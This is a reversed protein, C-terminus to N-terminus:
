ASHRLVRGPRRGTVAGNAVVLEGNVWVDRVGSALQCPQTWTANDRMGAPDFVAIDAKMGRALIGRDSIGLRNAAASTSKRVADALSLKKREVVYRRFLRAHAGFSRPHPRGAAHVSMASGDSGVVALPHALFEAVDAEARYFLVVQVSNGHRAVLRLCLEEPSMAYRAAASSIGEGELSESEPGALSVVVREWDWPITGFLGQALEHRAREFCRDDSLLEAIGGEGHEQVWSPLYQALSSASADYPYVDYGIDIGSEFSRQFLDTVEGARGWTRPDNLAVHSYQTRVNTRRGVEIAEAFSGFFSATARAHTAYLADSDWVVRALAHIEREAAFRSPVYTLGTSLGFAGQDLNERLIRAMEDIMDDRVPVDGTGMVAIRLAGHGVLPALNMVPRSASLATAYGDFDTWMPDTSPTGLGRLLETLQDRREPTVPYASFGCNGVVETTVGQTVKSDAVPDLLLSVDSHTHIDIFGPAVVLGSCDIMNADRPIMGQHQEIVEVILDGKLGVAGVRGPAGSGDVVLGNCLWVDVRTM